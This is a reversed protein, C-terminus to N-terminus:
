VVSSTIDFPLSVHLATTQMLDNQHHIHHIGHPTCVGDASLAAAVQLSLVLEVFIAAEFLLFHGVMVSSVGWDTIAEQFGESIFEDTISIFGGTMWSVGNGVLVLQIFRTLLYQQRLSALASAKVKTEGIGLLELEGGKRLVACLEFALRTFAGTLVFFTGISVLYFVDDARPDTTSSIQGFARQGLMLIRVVSMWPLARVMKSPADTDADCLISRSRQFWDPIVVANTNESLRAADRASLTVAGIAGGAAASETGDGGTRMPNHVHGFTGEAVSILDAMTVEAGELVM